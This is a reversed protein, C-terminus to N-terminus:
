RRSLMVDFMGCLGSRYISRFLVQSALVGL